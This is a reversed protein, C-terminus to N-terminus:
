SLGTEAWGWRMIALKRILSHKRSPWHGACIRYALWETSSLHPAPRPLFPRM